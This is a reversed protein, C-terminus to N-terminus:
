TALAQEAQQRFKIEIQDFIPAVAANLDRVLATLDNPALPMPISINDFILRGRHDLTFRLDEFRNAAEVNELAADYDIPM